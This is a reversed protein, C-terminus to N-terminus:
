ESYVAYLLISDKGDIIRFICDNVPM